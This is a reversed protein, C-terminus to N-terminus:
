PNLPLIVTYLLRLEFLSSTSFNEDDPRNVVFLSTDRQAVAPLTGLGGQLLEPEEFTQWTDTRINYYYPRTDPVGGLLIIFNAITGSGFRSRPEPLMATSATWQEGARAPSYIESSALVGSANEGGMVYIKNDIAVAGGYARPAPMVTEEEWTDTDPDYVYVEDRASSGDWGGFLYMRGELTVLGYASRPEPLPAATSWNGQVPDYVELTTTITSNTTEGGPVYIRGNLVVAQANSVPTPKSTLSRWTDNGPDYRWVAGTAGERAEGGIVFISGDMSTAAAATQAMPLANLSSWSLRVQSIAPAQSGGSGAEPNSPPPTPQAATGLMQGIGPVFLVVFIGLLIIAVAISAGLLFM